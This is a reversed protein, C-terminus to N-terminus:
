VSLIAARDIDNLDKMISISRYQRCKESLRMTAEAQNYGIEFMLRGKPKLYEPSQSILIKIFDLGEAGSILAIKPDALVEPPLMKYEGESIYPPNSLILDFKTGKELGSFGDSELFRIREAVGALRANKKAIELAEASIDLAAVKASPIEAAITIAIVGSGTGVDLVDPAKIKENKIYGIALECLIETEPTPIMAGPEITFRRGYFYTEGLIYQLPYRTARKDIIQNFKEIRRDDILDAGHMYLDIRELDLIAELIIEVEATASAIGAESLKKEAFNILERFGTQDM